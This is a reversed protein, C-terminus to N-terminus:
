KKNHTPPLYHGNSFIETLSLPFSICGKYDHETWKWLLPYPDKLRDTIYELCVSVCHPRTIRLSRVTLKQKIPVHQVHLSRRSQRTPNELVKYSVQVRM